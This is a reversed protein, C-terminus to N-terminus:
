AVAPGIILLSPLWPATFFICIVAAALAIMLLPARAPGAGDAFLAIQTTAVGWCLGSLIHVRGRLRLDEAAPTKLWNVVAYFVAWASAFTVCSTAMALANPAQAGVWIYIPLSVGFAALAYPLLATQAELAQQALSHGGGRLDPTSFDSNPPM